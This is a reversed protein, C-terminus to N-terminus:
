TETEGVLYEALLTHKNPLMYLVDKRRSTLIAWHQFYWRSLLGKKGMTIIMDFRM